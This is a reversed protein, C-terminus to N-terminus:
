EGDMLYGNMLREVGDTLKAVNFNMLLGMKKDALKMYSILQARHIPHVEQVSKIELVLRDDVLLDLRLDHAVLKGKYIIPVAVQEAAPIALDKLEQFLCCQYVSELLGPGLERHVTIAAGIVKRTLENYKLAKKM